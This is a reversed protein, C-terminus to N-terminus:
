LMLIKPTMFLDLKKFADRHEKCKGCYWQDNGSLLEEESFKKFCSDLAVTSKMKKNKPGDDDLNRNMCVGKVEFNSDKNILVEFRISREWKLKAYLDGLKIDRGGTEM